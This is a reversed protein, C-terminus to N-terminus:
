DDPHADPTFLKLFKLFNLFDSSKFLLTDKLSYFIDRM